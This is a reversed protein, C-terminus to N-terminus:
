QQKPAVAGCHLPHGRQGAYESVAKIVELAEKRAYLGCLGIGQRHVELMTEKAEDKTMAFFKQLVDVVFEMPTYDDNYLVVQLDAGEPLDAEHSATAPSVGHTLYFVADFRRIGHQALLQSAPSDTDNLIAVLVDAGTVETRGTRQGHDTAEQIMRQFALTPAPDAERDAPVSAQEAARQLLDRRLSQMKVGCGRLVKTASPSDLLAILLHEVTVSENRRKRADEIARSLTAGLERAVASGPSDSEAPPEDGAALRSVGYQKLLRVAHSDKEGFMATLTDAGTVEKKGSSQVHLIARQIVRQFALTPQTDVERDAAIRPTQQVIHQKLKEHLEDMDAGSARLVQAATPCDLLALLLHEVTIFEHRDQRANVFALHLCVELEQAIM